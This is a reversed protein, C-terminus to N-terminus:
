TTGDCETMAPVTVRNDIAGSNAREQVDTRCAENDVAWHLAATEVKVVSSLM